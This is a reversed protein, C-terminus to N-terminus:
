VKNLENIEHNGMQCELGSIKLKKENKSFFSMGNHFNRFNTFFFLPHFYLYCAALFLQVNQQLRRNLFRLVLFFAFEEACAKYLKFIIKGSYFILTKAPM